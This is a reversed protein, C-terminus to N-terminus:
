TITGVTLEGTGEFTGSVTVTDEVPTGMTLSTLWGCGEYKPDGSVQNTFRLNSPLRGSWLAVMQIWNKASDLDMMAEFSFDWSRLAELSEKFGNSDKTTADRTAMELNMDHNTTATIAVTEHYLIMTTGNEYSQTGAAM